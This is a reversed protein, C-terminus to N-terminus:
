SSHFASDNTPNTVNQKGLADKLATREFSPTTWPRLTPEERPNTNTANPKQEEM